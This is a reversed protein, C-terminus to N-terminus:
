ASTQPIDRGSSCETPCTWAVTFGFWVLREPCQWACEGSARGVGSRVSIQRYTLHDAGRRSKQSRSVFIYVCRTSVARLDIATKSRVRRNKFVPQGDATTSRKRVAASRSL